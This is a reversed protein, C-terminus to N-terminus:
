LVRNMTNREDEYITHTIILTGKPLITNRTDEHNYYVEEIQKTEYIAIEDGFCVDYGGSDAGFATIPKNQDLTKLKEILQAVTILM